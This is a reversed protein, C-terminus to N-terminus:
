TQLEKPMRFIMEEKATEIMEVESTNFKEKLFDVVQDVLIEPTSAGSSIGITNVHLWEDKIDHKSQILYSPKGQANAVEVMRKSNSSLQGGIILILDSRRALEKVAHQRNTTAYCIDEIPPFKISPYKQQLVEKIEKTEDVSLTTQTLCAVKQWTSDLREVDSVHEILHMPAHGMTGIVEQHGKHGILVIHYGQQHFQIAEFHVKTVLPCTADIIRLNRQKAEEIVEPPIGHASFIIVSGEPIESTGEVFVAGKKELEQIVHENHVIQHRVYVPKGFLELAKEVIEIARDVGACFGRPAALFLKM